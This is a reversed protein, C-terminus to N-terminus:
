CQFRTFWRVLWANRPVELWTGAAGANAMLLGAERWGGHGDMTIQPTQGRREIALRMHKGGRPPPGGGSM